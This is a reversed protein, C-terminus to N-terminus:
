HSSAAYPNTVPNTPNKSITVLLLQLRKLLKRVKCNVAARVLEEADEGPM